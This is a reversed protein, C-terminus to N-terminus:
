RVPKPNPYVLGVGPPTAAAFPLTAELPQMTVEEVTAPVTEWSTIPM